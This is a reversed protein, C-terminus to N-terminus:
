VKDNDGARFQTFADERPSAWEDHRMPSKLRFKSPKEAPTSLDVPVIRTLVIKATNNPTRQCTNPSATRGIRATQGVVKKLWDRGSGAISTPQM